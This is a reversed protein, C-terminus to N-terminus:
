AAAGARELSSLEGTDLDDYDGGPQATPEARRPRVAIVIAATALALGALVAFATDYGVEYPAGTADVRGFVIASVAAAGIAAGMTRLNANMGTAVGTQSAPVSQVVISATAAYSLALGAGFFGGAVAVQWAESHYLATAAVAVAMIAAGAALMVRLPMVRSLAGAAFGVGSMAILLPLLLLGAASVDAGLGYGTAVPTQLFQPLFGWFGFMAAGLMLAALNAPWVARGLLMRIDVLPEESRLEVLVWSVFLLAAAAFLGIVPWSGWGWRAGSSLPVLLAVLWSSLLVAAAVNVRGRGTVATRPVFIVVLAAGVAALLLPALFLGRWSVLESLPGAAVSGAAGGIGIVASMAGIAGVVRERPLADRIIGFALPFLAGGAGQLVRGALLATLDPAAAAVVDGVAVVGLVALFVTRRGRLDGVRGLLPTAVAAAILWATMTWTAGEATTGLDRQIVPVVPIVLNQLTAISAVSVAIAAFARRPTATTAM